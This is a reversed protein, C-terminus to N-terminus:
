YRGNVTYADGRQLLGRVLMAGDQDYDMITPCLRSDNSELVVARRDAGLAIRDGAKLTRSKEVGGTIYMVKGDDLDVKRTDSGWITVTIQRTVQVVTRTLRWELDWKQNILDLRERQITYLTDLMSLMASRVSELTREYSYGNLRFSRKIDGLRLQRRLDNVENTLSAAGDYEVRAKEYADYLVAIITRIERNEDTYTPLSHWWLLRDAKLAGASQFVDCDDDDPIAPVASFEYVMMDLPDRPGDWPSSPHKLEAEAIRKECCVACWLEDCYGYDRWLKHGTLGCDSCRYERKTM